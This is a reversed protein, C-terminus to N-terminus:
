SMENKDGTLDIDTRTRTARRTLTNGRTMTNKGRLLNRVTLVIMGIGLLGKLITNSKRRSPPEVLTNKGTWPALAGGRAVEKKGTWLVAKGVM